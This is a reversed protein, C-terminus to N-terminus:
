LPGVIRDPFSNRMPSRSHLRSRGPQSAPGLPYFLYNPLHEHPLLVTIVSEMEGRV